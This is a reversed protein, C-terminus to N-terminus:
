MTAMVAQWAISALFYSIFFSSHLIFFLNAHFYNMIFSFTGNQVGLTISKCHPNDVHEKM